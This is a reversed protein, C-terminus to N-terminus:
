PGRLGTPQEDPEPAPRRPLFLGVAAWAVLSGVVFAVLMPGLLEPFLSWM